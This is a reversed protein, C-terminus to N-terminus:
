KRDALAAALAGDLDPHAFTFGAAELRRPLVRQSPLLFEDAVRRGLALVLVRRPVRFPTPRHLARGLARTFEENRVPAPASFNVPGRLEPDSACALLAGIADDISIWSTWQRGSGLRGGLGLGFLRRQVALAGGGPGLVIGSRACVVRAGAERAPSTAAEWSRCVEALFGTGAAASEDLVEEGRDGFYGVASMSVLAPLEAQELSAIARALLDTTLIRSSRIRELKATGWRRPTLPEGALNFVATVGSLDGAPLRSTDLRRHALDIGVEGPGPEHRVVPVIDAGGARLAAVLARGLYGSSGSVVARM